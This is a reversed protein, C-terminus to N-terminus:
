SAPLLRRITVSTCLYAPSLVVRHTISTRVQFLMWDAVNWGPIATIGHQTVNLKLQSHHVGQFLKIDAVIWGHFDTIGHEVGM